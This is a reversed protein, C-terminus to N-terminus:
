RSSLAGSIESESLFVQGATSDTESLVCHDVEAVEGVAELFLL